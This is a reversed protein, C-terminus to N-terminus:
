SRAWGAIQEITMPTTRCCGGIIQAGDHFWQQTLHGFRDHEAKGVWRKESMSYQEGANPYVVIPKCTVQRIIKIVDSIYNSRTCNVGVAVIQAFDDLWKIIESLLNGDSIYNADRVSFSLWATRTPFEILLNALAQAEIFSPITEFAIMDAETNALVALRPQHFDMLEILTLDYNGRYESGDALFAGYSGISAAVIPKPRNLRNMPNAWFEDRAEIALRVALQMMDASQTKTMGRKAFGEFTAQYTATTACDAGAKFYNAHIQKILHPSELLVKASWLPDHLDCGMRELETALAGDLIMPNHTQLIKEIPNM